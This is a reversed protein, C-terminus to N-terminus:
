RFRNRTSWCHGSGIVSIGSLLGSSHHQLIVSLQNNKDPGSFDLYGSTWSVKLIAKLAVRLGASRYFM